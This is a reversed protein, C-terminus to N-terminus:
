FLVSLRGVLFRFYGMFEGGWVMWVGECGLLPLGSWHGM